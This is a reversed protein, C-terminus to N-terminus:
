IINTTSIGDNEKIYGYLIQKITEDKKESKYKEKKLKIKYEDYLRRLVPMYEKEVVGQKEATGSKTTVNGNDNNSSSTFYSYSSAVSTKKSRDPSYYESVSTRRDYKIPSKKNNTTITAASATTTTSNHYPSSPVSDDIIENAPLKSLDKVANQRKLLLDSRQHKEKNNSLITTEGTTKNMLTMGDDTIKNKSLTTLITRTIQPTEFLATRILVTVVDGNEVIFTKKDFIIRTNEYWRNLGSYYM